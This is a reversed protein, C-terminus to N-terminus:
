KTTKTAKTSSKKVVRKTTDKSQKKANSTVEKNQIKPESGNEKEAVKESVIEETDEKPTVYKETKKVLLYNKQVSLIEVFEGREIKEGNESKVKWPIKNFNVVGFGKKGTITRLLKVKALPLNESQSKMIYNKILKRLWLVCLLVIIIFIVIQIEWLVGCLNLILSLFGGVAFWVAFAELTIFEAILSAVIIGIWIYTLIM